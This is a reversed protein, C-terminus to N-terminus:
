IARWEGALTAAEETGHWAVVRHLLTTTAHSPPVQGRRPWPNKWHLTLSYCLHHTTTHPGSLAMSAM